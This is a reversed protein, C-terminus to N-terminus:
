RARATRRSPMIKAPVVRSSVGSCVGYKGTSQYTGADAEVADRLTENIAQLM